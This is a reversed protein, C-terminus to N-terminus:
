ATSEQTRESLLPLSSVLATKSAASRMIRPAQQPQVNFNVRLIVLFGQDRISLKAVEHMRVDLPPNHEAVLRPILIHFLKHLPFM